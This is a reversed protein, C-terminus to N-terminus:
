NVVKTETKCQSSLNCIVFPLIVLVYMDAVLETGMGMVIFYMLIIKGDINAHVFLLLYSFLFLCLGIVGYSVVVIVWGPIWGTLQIVDSSNGLGFLWNLPSSFVKLSEVWDFRSSMAAQSSFTRTLMIQFSRTKSVFFLAIIGLMVIPVLYIIKNKKSLLRVIFVMWILSTAIVGTTSGSILIGISCFLMLIINKKDVERTSCIALFGSVFTAYHAPESFFSDPRFLNYASYINFNERQVEIDTLAFPGFQGPIYVGMFVAAFTQILLFVTCVIVLYKYIKYAIEVSFFRKIGYILVFYYMIYRVWYIIQNGAEFSSNWTFLINFMVCVMIPLFELSEKKGNLTRLSLGCKMCIMAVIVILIYDGFTGGLIPLGYLRLLPQVILSACFIKKEFDNMM